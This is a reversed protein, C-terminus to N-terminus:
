PNIFKNMLERTKKHAKTLPLSHFDEVERITNNITNKKGLYKKSKEVQQNFFELKKNSTKSDDEIRELTKLMELMKRSAELLVTQSSTAKPNRNKKVRMPACFKNIYIEFKEELHPILWDYTAYEVASTLSVKAAARDTVRGFAEGLLGIYLNLSIISVLVFHTSIALRAYLQNVSALTNFDYGGVFLLLFLQYLLDNFKGYENDGNNIDNRGFIVWFMVAFPIYFETYLFCFRAAAIAMEGLMDIFPGLFQLSRLARNLRLWTVLIFVSSFYMRMNLIFTKTPSCYWYVTFIMQVTSMLLCFAEVLNWGSTFFNSSRLKLTDMNSKLLIGEIPWAPHCFSTDLQLEFLKAQKYKENLKLSISYEMYLKYMFFFTMLYSLVAVVIVANFKGLNENRVMNSRPLQLTATFTWMITFLLYLFINLYVYFNSFKGKVELLKLTVPHTILSLDQQGILIELFTPPNFKLGRDASLLRWRRKGLCSIYYYEVLGDKALFQDLAQRGVFSPLREVILDIVATGTTCYSAVPLELDLFHLCMNELGREAALYFPCRSREDKELPNAGHKVLMDFAEISGSKAAFHIPMQGEGKNTKHFINAGNRILWEVMKCHNSSAAVFLPTRGWNDPTDINAGKSKLYVGVDTNWERAVEHMLTQGYKDLANVDAQKLVHDVFKYDFYADEDEKFSLNKFYIILAFDAEEKSNFEVDYQKLEEFPFQTAANTNSVKEEYEQLTAIKVLKPGKTEVNNTPSTRKVTTEKLTKERYPNYHLEENISKNLNLKDLKQELEIAEKKFSDEDDKKSEESKEFAPNNFYM